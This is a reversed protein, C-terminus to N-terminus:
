MLAPESISPEVVSWQAVARFVPVHQCQSTQVVHEARRNGAILDHSTAGVLIGGRDTSRSFM